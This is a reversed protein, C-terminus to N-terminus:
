EKFLSLNAKEIVCRDSSKDAISFDAMVSKNKMQCLISQRINQLEAIAEKIHWSMRHDSSTEKSISGEVM